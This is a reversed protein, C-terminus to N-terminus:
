DIVSYGREELGSQVLETIVDIPTSQISQAYGAVARELDYPWIMTRRITGPEDWAQELTENVLQAKGEELPEAELFRKIAMRALETRSTGVIDAREDLRGLLESPLAISVRHQHRVLPGTQRAAEIARLDIETSPNEKM